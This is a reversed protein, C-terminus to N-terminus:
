RTHLASMIFEYGFLQGTYINIKVSIFAKVSLMGDSKQKTILLAKEFAFVLRQEKAGNV